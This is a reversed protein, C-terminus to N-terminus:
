TSIVASVVCDKEREEKRERVCVCVHLVCLLWEMQNIVLTSNVASVVRCLRERKRERERVSCVHLVCIYSSSGNWWSIIM